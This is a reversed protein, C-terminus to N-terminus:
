ATSGSSIVHSGEWRLHQSNVCFLTMTRKHFQIAIFIIKGKGRFIKCVWDVPFYHQFISTTSIQLSEKLNWNIIHKSFSKLFVVLYLVINLYGKLLPFAMNLKPIHLWPSFIEFCFVEKMSSQALVNQFIRSSGKRM